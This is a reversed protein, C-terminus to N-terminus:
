AASHVIETRREDGYSDKIENLEDKIISMRLSEDALVSKLYEIQKMLEAYEEKIKDRELGTLRRLTMDLIARAQIDSLGFRNMLGERAEDPTSANRIVAIVEDMHDSAKLLGELIHARKEAEALEFKTRRVIVEHRHDVFHVIMDKLNLLMPRGHVLAINNVS